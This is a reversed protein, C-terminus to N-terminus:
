PTPAPYPYAVGVTLSRSVSTRGVLIPAPSDAGMVYALADSYTAMDEAYPSGKNAKWNWIMGLKLLREDIAFSDGDNIFSDGYGGGSLAVANKNLYAFTATTGVGMIPWILMQGGIITWEGWASFRNLARRQLWEDTNPIFQMPHLASTSRWVNAQLLMRKFDAPLNFAQATGNGSFTVTKKLDTWERTDYAIRQAVENALSVMEQMTRNGSINAFVATPVLVGVNACVDKVVSLISM